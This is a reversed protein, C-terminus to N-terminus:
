ILFRIHFTSKGLPSEIQQAVIGLGFPFNLSMLVYYMGSYVDTAILKDTLTRTM